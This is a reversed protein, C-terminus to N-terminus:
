ETKQLGSACIIALGVEQHNVSDGPSAPCEQYVVLQRRM